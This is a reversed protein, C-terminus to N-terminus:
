WTPIAFVPKSLSWLRDFVGKANQCTKNNDIAVVATVNVDDLEIRCASQDMLFFHNGGHDAPLQRLEFRGKFFGWRYEDLLAALM